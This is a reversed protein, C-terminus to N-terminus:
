APVARRAPPESRRLREARLSAETWSRSAYAVGVLGPLLATAVVILAPTITLDPSPRFSVVIWPAAVVWATILIAVSLRGIRDAIRTLGPFGARFVFGAAICALAAVRADTWDAVTGTIAGAAITPIAAVFLLARRDHSAIERLDVGLMHLRDVQSEDVDVLRPATWALLTWPWGAPAFSSLLAVVAFAPGRLSIVAYVISDIAALKEERLRRWQARWLGIGPRVQGAPAAFDRSGGVSPSWSPPRPQALFVGVEATKMWEFQDVVFVCGSLLVPALALPGTWWGLADVTAALEHRKACTAFLVALAWAAAALVAAHRLVVRLLSDRRPRRERWGHFQARAAYAIAAALAVSILSGAWGASHGHAGGLVGAFSAVALFAALSYLLVGGLSRLTWDDRDKALGRWILFAFAAVPALGISAVAVPVGSAASSFRAVLVVACAGVWLLWPLSRLWLAALLGSRSPMHLLAFAGFRPAATTGSRRRMWKRVVLLWFVASWLAFLDRSSMPWLAFMAPLAWRVARRTWEVLRLWVFQHRPLTAREWFRVLRRRHAEIRLSERADPWLATASL